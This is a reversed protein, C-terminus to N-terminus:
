DTTFRADLEWFNAGFHMKYIEGANNNFFGDETSQLLLYHQVVYQGTSGVALNSTASVLNTSGM